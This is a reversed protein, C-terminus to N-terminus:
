PRKVQVRYQSTIRTVEARFARTTQEARYKALVQERVSEFPPEGAPLEENAPAFEARHAQYYGRLQDDTPAALALEAQLMSRVRAILQARLMPDAQLLALRVGERFLAEDEVYREILQQCEADTPARGQRQEFLKNLERQKSASVELLEAQDDSRVLVRHGSFVVAGLLMFHVLPESAFRRLRAAMTNDASAAVVSEPRTEVVAQSPTTNATVDPFAPAATRNM